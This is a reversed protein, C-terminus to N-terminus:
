VAQNKARLLPWSTISGWAYSEDAIPKPFDLILGHM